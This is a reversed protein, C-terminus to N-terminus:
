QRSRGNKRGKEISRSVEEDSIGPWVEALHLTKALLCQDIVQRTINEGERELIAKELSTILGLCDGPTQIKRIEFRITTDIRNLQTNQKEKNPLFLRRLRELAM